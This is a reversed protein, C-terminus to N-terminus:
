LDFNDQILQWIMLGLFLIAGNCGVVVVLTTMTYIVNLLALQYDTM